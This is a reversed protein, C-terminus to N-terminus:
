PKSRRNKPLLAKIWAPCHKPCAIDSPNCRACRNKIAYASPTM